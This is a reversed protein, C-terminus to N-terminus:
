AIADPARWKGKGRGKNRRAARYTAAPRPVRRRRMAPNEEHRIIEGAASAAALAAIAAVPSPLKSM